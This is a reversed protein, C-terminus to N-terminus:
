REAARRGARVAQSAEDGTVTTAQNEPTRLAGPFYEATLGSSHVPSDSDSTGYRRWDRVWFMDDAIELFGITERDGILIGQVRLGLKDKAGALAEVVARPAGFEGDSAILLDALQWNGDELKALARELPGSIDTGGRFTQGMFQTLREVGELDLGLEMEVVEDPGSFAFVHCPRRQAHATRVAELVAAKAVAEAGGQMSGSTDVCVLMPGMELRKEPVRNPSPRWVLGQCHVVEPMRDDDEYTLLTREAHRAHWVLRLRPHNLLMAEAALMRAVRSSRRVGRTEGPVDPVRTTLVQTSPAITREMVQVEASHVEEPLTAERARGLRRILRVLEPLGEILRRIRMVQQWGSSRLLGHMLDWRMNKGLDGLDGFVAVLEDLEGCREKWDERFGELALAAAQEETAGRDIYDVIQDLHWLLSRLVTTTLEPQEHCYRPLELERLVAGVGTALGTAPWRWDGANPLTGAQLADRLEEIGGLRPGVSGHSHVCSWLWLGRPLRELPALRAELREFLLSPPIAVQSM